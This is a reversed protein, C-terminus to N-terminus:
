VSRERNIEPEDFKPHVYRLEYCIHVDCVCCSLCRLRLHERDWIFIRRLVQKYPVYVPQHWQTPREHNLHLVNRLEYGFYLDPLTCPM